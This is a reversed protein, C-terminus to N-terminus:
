AHMSQTCHPQHIDLDTAYHYSNKTFFFIKQSVWINQSSDTEHTLLQLTLFLYLFTFNNCVNFYFFVEQTTEKKWYLSFSILKRMLLIRGALLFFSLFNLNCKWALASGFSLFQLCVSKYIMRRLLRLSEQLM